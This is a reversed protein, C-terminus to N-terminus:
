LPSRQSLCASRSGLINVQGLRLGEHFININHSRASMVTPKGPPDPLLLPVSQASLVSFPERANQSIM